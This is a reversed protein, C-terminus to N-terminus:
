GGPQTHHIHWRQGCREAMVEDGWIFDRCCGDQTIGTWTHSKLSIITTTQRLNWSPHSLIIGEAANDSLSLYYIIQSHKFGPSSSSLNSQKGEGMVQRLPTFCLMTIIKLKELSFCNDPPSYMESRVIWKWGLEEPFSETCWLIEFTVM